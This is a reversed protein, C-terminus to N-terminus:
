PARTLYDYLGGLGYYTTFRRSHIIVDRTRWVASLTVQLMRTGRNTLPPAPHTLPARGAAPELRAGNRDGPKPRAFSRGYLSLPRKM